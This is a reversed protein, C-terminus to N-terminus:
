KGSEESARKWETGTIKFSLNQGKKEINLEEQVKKDEKEKIESTGEKQTIVKGNEDKIEFSYNIKELFFKENPNKVKAAVVYAFPPEWPKEKTKINVEVKEIEVSKIEGEPLPRAVFFWTLAAIGLPFILFAFAINAQKLKRQFFTLM